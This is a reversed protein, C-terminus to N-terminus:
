DCKCWDEEQVLTIFSKDLTQKRNQRTAKEENDELVIDEEEELESKVEQIHLRQSVIKRAYLERM